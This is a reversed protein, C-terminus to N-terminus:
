NVKMLKQFDEYERIYEKSDYKKDSLVLLVNDSSFEKMTKWMMKNVFLVKTPSDLVYETVNKGDDVAVVCSGVVSILCFKSYKNAHKGREIGEITNYEYFIRKIEFPIDKLSEIVALGGREDGLENLDFMYHNKNDKKM